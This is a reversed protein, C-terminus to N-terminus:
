TSWHVWSEDLRPNWGSDFHKYINQTQGPTLDFADAMSKYKGGRKKHHNALYWDYLLDAIQWVEVSANTNM